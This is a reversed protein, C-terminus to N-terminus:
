WHRNKIVQVLSSKVAPPCPLWTKCPWLDWGATEPGTSVRPDNEMPGRAEPIHCATPSLCLYILATEHFANIYRGLHTQFICHNSDVILFDPQPQRSSKPHMENKPRSKLRIMNHRRM